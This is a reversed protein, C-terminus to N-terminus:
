RRVQVEWTAGLPDSRVCVIALTAGDVVIRGKESPEVDLTDAPITVKRDNAQVLSKAIEFRSFEGVFGRCAHAIVKETSGEWPKSTDIPVQSV